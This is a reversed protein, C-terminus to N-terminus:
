DSWVGARRFLAAWDARVDACRKGAIGSRAVLVTELDVPLGFQSRRFAERLLRKARNRDVADHFTRKSVVVGVKPGADAGRLMWSVVTKGRFTRGADFVPQYRSSPLRLLRVPPADVGATRSRVANEEKSDM